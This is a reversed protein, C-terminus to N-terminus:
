ELWNALTERKLIEEYSPRARVVAMNKGNVLVEGVAKAWAFDVPNIQVVADKDITTILGDIVGRLQQLDGDSVLGLKTKEDPLPGGSPKFTNSIEYVNHQILM